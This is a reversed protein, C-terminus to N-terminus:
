IAQLYIFRELAIEVNSVKFHDARIARLIKRRRSDIKNSGM